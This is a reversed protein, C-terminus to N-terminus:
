GGDSRYRAPGTVGGLLNHATNVLAVHTFAQPFNGVLRGRATDYAESLLGVDNALRCLRDFLARGEQLRGQLILNDALWFSCPLFAGEDGSLGDVVGISDNGYRRLLGGECLEREIASVTGVMRADGAPLFGVLPLMLLSADLRADGYSQTFTTRDADYGETCVEDHIDRRLRRWRDVPGPLGFQEVAHVARDAAVWAMVKSHTFQRRPGRVEWIGEDPEQWSGELFDMLTRQLAWADPDDGVGGRRAQHLCDMVEGYVDLQLQGSAANGIRVPRSGEYGALWPIALEPLRREGAAGYMIQLQEPAGAAARLLWDRWSAAEARYGGLMLAYLSFTADRLWCFRYDWNRAGGLDEPLSTTPAAVLGGTPGYTLAKLTILSRLVMPRDPGSTTCHASWEEWWTITQAMAELADVPPPPAEHSPHWTLVFPVVDGRGVEFEAVTSSAEGRTEVPTRLEVADPGAVARLADGVRRVWPVSAGYDFRLVLDMRMAVRGSVGRVVRVVDPAVGRVPMFDTLLVTGSSTSFTTELVLTDGVYRRTADARGGAPGIRWTGNTRDGLLAAFCAGSDFRPLCLWDISGDRGVLAASQTDGIRAYDEIKM